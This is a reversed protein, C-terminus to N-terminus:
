HKYAENLSSLDALHPMVEIDHMLLVEGSSLQQSIYRLQIHGNCFRVLAINVPDIPM